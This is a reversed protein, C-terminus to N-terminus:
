RLKVIELDHKSMLRMVEKAEEGTVNRCGELMVRTVRPAAAVAAIGTRTVGRMLVLELQRLDRCHNAACCLGLDSVDGASALKLHTLGPTCRLLCCLTTDTFHNTLTLSTLAPMTTCGEMESELLGYYHSELKLQTLQQQATIAALLDKCPESARHLALSLSCLSLKPLAQTFAPIDKDALQLSLSSLQKPLLSAAKPTLAFTGQLKLSTIPIRGLVAAMSQDLLVSCLQLQRLSKSSTLPQLATPVPPYDDWYTFCLTHLSPLGAALHCTDHSALHNGLTLSTLGTLHSLPALHEPLLVVRTKGPSLDLERLQQLQGFQSVSSADSYDGAGLLSQLCACTGLVRAFDGSTSSVNGSVNPLRLDTLRPCAALLVGLTDAEIGECNSLDLTRLKSLLPAHDNALKELLANVRIGSDQREFSLKQLRPFSMPLGPLDARSCLAKLNVRLSSIQSDVLERCERSVARSIRVREQTSALHRFVVLGIGNNM